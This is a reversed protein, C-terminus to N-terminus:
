NDLKEIAKEVRIQDQIRFSDIVKDDVVQQNEDYIMQQRTLPSQKITKEIDFSQGDELSVTVFIVNEKQVNATSNYSFFRGLLPLDGLIPVKSESEEKSTETLGGIVATQQNALMFTTEVRKEDIAYYTDYYTIDNEDDTGVLTVQTFEDNARSIIPVIKVAINEESYVTPTVSLRIGFEYEAYRKRNTNEDTGDDDQEVEITTLTTGSTSETQSLTRQLRPVKTLINISATEGNAVIVKPSSVTKVDAVQDLASLLVNVQGANLTLFNTQVFASSFSNLDSQTFSLNSLSLSRNLLGTGESSWDVGRDSDKSDTLELIRSQILVQQRPTDIREAVQEVDDMIEQTTKVVISNGQAYSFVQGQSGVIGTIMAAAQSLDAHKFVFTRTNKVAEAAPLKKRVSYVQSSPIKEYLELDQGDLIAQLAPKWDVDKLDVDVKVASVEPGLDPVIINAESLNAFIRILASLEVDKLHATILGASISGLDPADAPALLTEIGEDMDPASITEIGPAPEVQVEVPAADDQAYLTWAALLTTTLLVAKWKM